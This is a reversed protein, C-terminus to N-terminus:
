LQSYPDSRLGKHPNMEVTHKNKGFYVVPSLMAPFDWTHSVVNM